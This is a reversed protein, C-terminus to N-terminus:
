HFGYSVELMLTRSAGVFFHREDGVMYGSLFYENSLLNDVTLTVDISSGLTRSGKFWLSVFGPLESGPVNENTLESSSAFRTGLVVSNGIWANGSWTPTLLPTRNKLGNYDEIQADMYTLNGSLFGLSGELEVGRRFSQPVNERLPLGIYSLSGIPAIENRFSMWFLNITLNDGRWGAEFDLVREPNVSRLESLGEPTLDDAGAFLDTRTPERFVLGVNAYYDGYVIGTSPNLFVWSWNQSLDPDDYLFHVARLSTQTTWLAQGLDIEKSGYIVGQLKKGDNVYVRHPQFMSHERYYLSGNAGWRLGLGELGDSYLLGAWHSQLQFNAMPGSGFDIDYNGKLFTYFTGWSRTESVHNIAQIHTQTFSDDENDSLYNLRRDKELDSEAVALYAMGNNQTGTFSTIAWTGIKQSLFLSYANTWAGDRYGDTTLYSARAFGDNWSYMPSVRGSNWSGGSVSLSGGEEFSSPQIVFNVNGAFSPSGFFSQGSGRQVQVSTVSSLFDPFNGFYVGMDEPENLPVGNLSTSIRTQDIGRMRFYNYGIFPSGSDSYYSISPTYSLVQSADQGKNWKGLMEPSINSFTVPSEKSAWEGVVQVDGIYILSDGQQGFAILPFLLLLIFGILINLTKM